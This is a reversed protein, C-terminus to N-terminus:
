GFTVLIGKNDSFMRTIREKAERINRNARVLHGDNDDFWYVHKWGNKYCFRILFNPKNFVKTPYNNIRIYYDLSGIDFYLSKNFHRCRKYLKILEPNSDINAKYYEAEKRRIDLRNRTQYLTECNDGHYRKILANIEEATRTDSLTKEAVEDCDQKIREFEEKTFDELKKYGWTHCSM